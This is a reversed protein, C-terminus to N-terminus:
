TCIYLGDRRKLGPIVGTDMYEYIWTDMQRDIGICRYVIPEIKGERGTMRGCSVARSMAKGGLREGKERERYTQRSPGQGGRQGQSGVM